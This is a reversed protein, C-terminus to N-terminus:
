EKAEEESKKEKEHRREAKEKAEELKKEAKVAKKEASKRSKKAAKKDEKAKEKAEERKEIAKRGNKGIMPKSPGAKEGKYDAGGSSKDCPKKDGSDGGERSGSEQKKVGGQKDKDGKKSEGDSKGSEGGKGKGCRKTCAQKGKSSLVNWDSCKYDMIVISECRMCYASNSKEDDEWHHCFGGECEESKKCSKGQGVPTEIQIGKEEAEDHFTRWNIAAAVPIESLATEQAANSPNRFYHAGVILLILALAAIPFGM